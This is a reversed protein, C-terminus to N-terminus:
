RSEPILTGNSLASVCINFSEYSKRFSIKSRKYFIEMSNEHAELYIQIINM